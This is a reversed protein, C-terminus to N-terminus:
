FFAFNTLAEKKNIMFYGTRGLKKVEKFIGMDSLQMFDRYLARPLSLEGSKREEDIKSQLRKSYEWEKFMAASMSRLMAM